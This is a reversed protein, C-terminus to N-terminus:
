IIEMSCRLPFNNKQALEHVISIKTESIEKTFIGAVGVGEHHVNLMIRTADANSKHFVNELIAIVFEMTTYDDNHLLVKYLPPERTEIKEKTSVSEEKKTNSM